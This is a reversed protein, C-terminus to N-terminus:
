RVDTRVTNSVGPRLGTLRSLPRTAGAGGPQVIFAARCGRNRGPEGGYAVPNAASRPLKRCKATSADLAFHPYVLAFHLLPFVGPGLGTLRSLPRTGAVGPCGLRCALHDQV